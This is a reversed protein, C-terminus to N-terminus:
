LARKKKTTLGAYFNAISQQREKEQTNRTHLTPNAAQKKLTALEAELAEQQKGLAVIKQEFVEIKESISM